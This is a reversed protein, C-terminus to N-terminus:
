IFKSTRTLICKDLFVTITEIEKQIKNMALVMTVQYQYRYVRRKLM